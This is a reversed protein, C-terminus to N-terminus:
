LHTHTHIGLAAQQLRYATVQKKKKKKGSQGNAAPYGTLTSKGPFDLLQKRIM